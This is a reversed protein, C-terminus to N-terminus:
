MKIYMQLTFVPIARQNLVQERVYDLMRAPLNVGATAINNRFERMHNVQHIAVLAFEGVGLWSGPGWKLM